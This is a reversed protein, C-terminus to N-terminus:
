IGGSQVMGSLRATAEGNSTKLSFSLMMYPFLVGVSLGLMLSIIVWVTFNAPAVLMWLLGFITVLSIATMFWARQKKNLRSIIAPTVMSVPISILNFAGALLGGEAKSLGAAQAITPLWTMETYFLLSQLGGFLM